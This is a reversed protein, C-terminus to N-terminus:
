IKFSDARLPKRKKEIKKRAYVPLVYKLIILLYAM